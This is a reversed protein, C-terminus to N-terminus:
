EVVDSGGLESLGVMFLLVGTPSVVSAAGAITMGGDADAAAQEALGGSDPMLLRNVYRGGDPGRRDIAQRMLARARERGLDPSPRM